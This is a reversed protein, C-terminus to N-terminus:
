RLKFSVARKTASATNGTVGARDTGVSRLRYRGAPLRIARPVRYTWTGHKGLKAKLLVPKACSRTVLGRKPDLWRCRAHGSGVKQLSLAVTRVGSADKAKGAFRITRRKGKSRLRISQHSRPSTITVAPATIDGTGPTTPTTTTPTTVPPPPTTVGAPHSAWFSWSEASSDFGDVGDVGPRGHGGGVVKFYSMAVGPATCPQYLKRILHASVQTTAPTSSCGAAAGIVRQGFGKDGAMQAVGFNWRNKADTFGTELCSVHSPCSNKWIPDQDGFIWQASFNVNPSKGLVAPCHPLASPDNNVSPSIMPSSIAQYGAFMTSTRTDCMLDQTMTAGKSSGSAYIKSTDVNQCPSAGSCAVADVVAKIWPVDDCAGTGSLGCNHPGVSSPDPNTTLTAYQCNAQGGANTTCHADNPIIVLVFRNQVALNQWGGDNIDVVLPARNTASNTLGKPRYIAFSRTVKKGAGDDVVVSHNGDYAGAQCPNPSCTAQSGGSTARAQRAAAGGSPATSSGSTAAVAVGVGTLAVCLMGALVTPRM